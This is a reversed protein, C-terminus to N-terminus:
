TFCVITTADDGSVRIETWRTSGSANKVFEVGTIGHMTGYVASVDCDRVPLSLNLDAESFLTFESVGQSTHVNIVQSITGGSLTRPPSMTIETVNHISLQM